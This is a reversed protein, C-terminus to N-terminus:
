GFYKRPDAIAGELASAAVTAPSVIYIESHKLKNKNSINNYTTTLAREGDALMGNNASFYSDYSPNLILCGSEVLASIYGKDIAELFTKRSSPIVMMRTNRHIRRGRLISAAIELDELHGNTCGGLVVHDIQKGALEEVPKSDDINGCAVIQPSLFSVDTEIENEYIADFDAKVLKYKAKTIKKLFRQTIEDVPVMASGAGAAITFNTLTIRQSTTLAMIARGYFEFAKGSKAYKNIERSLKLIIDNAAVGQSLNGNVVIKISEPIKQEIRGSAWIKAMESIAINISYAGVGGYSPIYQDAGVTLQGPLILGEEIIVQHPMGCGVDYFMMISQKKAFERIKKQEGAINQSKIESEALSGLHNLIIAIKAHNFVKTNGANYFADIAIGANDSAIVLDPEIAVIEGEEVTKLGAKRALLKRIFTEKRTSKTISPMDLFELELQEIKLQTPKNKIGYRLRWQRFGPGSIGLEIGALRDDGFREWLDTIRESSYKPQSYPGIKKKSRWYAVLRGPVGYVEGIKKDTRYKKQLELLEKKRPIKM